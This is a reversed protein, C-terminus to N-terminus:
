AAAGDLTDGLSRAVAQVTAIARSYDMRTPGLVGITGTVGGTVYSTVVLSCARMEELENEAGILVSVGSGIAARLLELLVVREELVSFVDRITEAAQFAGPGAMLAQGGVYVQEASVRGLQESLVDAFRRLLQAGSESLTEALGRLRAAVADLALGHLAEDIQRSQRQIEDASVKVPSDVVSKEIRGDDLILVLLVVRESLSVLQALRVCRGSPSPSTVVATYSTLRALLVAARRLVEELDMVGALQPAVAQRQARALAGIGSLSDVFFRYGQDTPIRGSSTHPHFVYGQDELAALDNRITASSVGMGYREVLLRSAVPEGTKIFSEVLSRLVKARRQDLMLM